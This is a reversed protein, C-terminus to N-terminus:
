RVGGNVRDPISLPPTDRVMDPISLTKGARKYRQITPVSVGIRDALEKNTATPEDNMFALLKQRKENAIAQRKIGSRIGRQKQREIFAEPTFNDWTWGAVSKIIHKVEPYYLCNDSGFLTNNQFVAKIELDDFFSQYGNRRDKWYQKVQRYAYRRLHDFLTVNRGWGYDESRQRADVKALDLYDALWDLTYLYQQYERVNWYQHLPNKATFGNYYPDADLKQMLAFQVAAAYKAAKMKPNDTNVPIELGYFLHAHLNEPNEAVINPAPLDRGSWDHLTGGGPRDVDYVLWSKIAHRNPQIYRRTVATQAYAFQLGEDLDNACYLRPALRDRFLDLQQYREM